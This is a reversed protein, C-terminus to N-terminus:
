TKRTCVGNGFCRKLFSIEELSPPKKAKQVDVSETMYLYVGKTKRTCVGNGFCSKLFSIEELSPPKKAKQTDNSWIGFSIGM